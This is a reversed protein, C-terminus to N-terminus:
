EEQNRTVTLMEEMFPAMRADMQARMEELIAQIQDMRKQNGRTSYRHVFSDPIKQLLSQFILFGSYLKCFAIHLIIYSHM